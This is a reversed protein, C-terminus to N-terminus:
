ALEAGAALAAIRKVVEVATILHAEVLYEFKSHGNCGGSSVNPCPFGGEMNSINAGDTGGRIAGIQMTIGLSAMAQQALTVVEPHIKVKELMNRYQDQIAVEVVGQGYQANLTQVVKNMTVKRRELSDSDFDRLLYDLQAKEM